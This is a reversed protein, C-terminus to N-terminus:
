ATVKESSGLIFMKHNVNPKLVCCVQKDRFSRNKTRVTWKQKVMMFSKKKLKEKNTSSSHPNLCHKKYSYGERGERGAQLLM